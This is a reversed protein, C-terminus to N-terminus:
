TLTLRVFSFRVARNPRPDNEINFYLLNSLDVLDAFVFDSGPATAVPWISLKEESHKSNMAHLDKSLQIGEGTAVAGPESKTKGIERSKEHGAFRL